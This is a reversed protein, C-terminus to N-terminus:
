RRTDTTLAMAAYAPRDTQLPSSKPPSISPMPPAAGNRHGSAQQGARLSGHHGRRNKARHRLLDADQIARELAKLSHSLSNRDPRQLEPELPVHSTSTMKTIIPSLVAFRATMDPGTSVCWGPFSPAGGRGADRRAIDVVDSAPIDRMCRHENMTCVPRHCPQCPVTTKTQVTAGPRSRRGTYPSTPGFIGMTPTGLAAAIHM